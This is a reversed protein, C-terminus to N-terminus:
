AISVVAARSVGVHKNGFPDILLDDMMVSDFGILQRAEFIRNRLM